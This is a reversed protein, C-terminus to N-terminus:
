GDRHGVVFPVMFVMAMSLAEVGVSSASSTMRSFMYEECFRDLFTVWRSRASADPNDRPIVLARRL